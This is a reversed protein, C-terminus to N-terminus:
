LYTSHKWKRPLKSQCTLSTIPIAEAEQNDYDHISSNHYSSTFMAPALSSLAHLVASVQTCRASMLFLNCMTHTYVSPMKFTTKRLNTYPLNVYVVGAHVHGFCKANVYRFLSKLRTVPPISTSLSLYTDENVLSWGIIPPPPLGTPM